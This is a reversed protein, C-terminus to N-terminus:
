RYVCAFCELSDFTPWGRECRLLNGCTMHGAAGTDVYGGRSARPAEAAQRAPHSDARGSRAGGGRRPRQAGLGTDFTLGSHGAWRPGLPQTASAPRLSPRGPACDLAPLLRRLALQVAVPGVQQRCPGLVLEIKLHMETARQIQKAANRSGKVGRQNGKAGRKTEM